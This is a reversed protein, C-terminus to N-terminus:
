TSTRLGRSSCALCNPGLTQLGLSLRKVVEFTSFIVKLQIQWREIFSSRITCTYPPGLHWPKRKSAINVTIPYFLRRKRLSPLLAGAVAAAIM